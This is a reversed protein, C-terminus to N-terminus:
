DVGGITGGPHSTKFEEITIEPLSVAITDLYIQMLINSTTPAGLTGVESVNPLHITYDCVDDFKSKDLGICIGYITVHPKTKSVYRLFNILESTNGSKSLAVIVDNNDLMGMDGHMANVPCIKHADYQLSRFMNATKMAITENKGIGTFLIKGLTTSDNKRKNYIDNALKSTEDSHILNETDVLADQLEASTIRLTQVFNKNFKMQQKNIYTRILKFAIKM